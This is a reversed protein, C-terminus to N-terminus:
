SFQKILGCGQFSERWMFPHCTYWVKQFSIYLTGLFLYGSNIRSLDNGRELGIKEVTFHPLLSPSCGCFGQSLATQLNETAQFLQLAMSTKDM